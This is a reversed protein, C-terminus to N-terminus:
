LSKNGTIKRCGRKPPHAFLDSRLRFHLKMLLINGLCTLATKQIKVSKVRHDLEKNVRKCVSVM